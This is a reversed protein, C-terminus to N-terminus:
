YQKNYFEEKKILPVPVLTYGKRRLQMILGNAYFLHKLGVVIFASTSDTIAEIQPIWSNNRRDLLDNYLTDDETSNVDFRYNIDLTRYNEAEWCQSYIDPYFHEVNCIINRFMDLGSSDEDSNIGLMTNIVGFTDALSELGAVNKRYTIAGNALYEDMVVVDEAVRIKCIERYVESLIVYNIFQPPIKNVQRLKFGLKWKKFFHKTDRKEKRTLYRSWKSTKQFAGTRNGVAEFVITNVKRFQKTIIPYNDIFTNGFEHFSGFLYSTDGKKNVLAWLVTNQQSNIHNMFNTDEKPSAAVMLLALFVTYM